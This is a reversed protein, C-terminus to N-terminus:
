ELCRWEMDIINKQDCEKLFEVCDNLVTDFAAHYSDAINQVIEKLTNSGDCLEWIRASVNELLVSIGSDTGANEKGIKKVEERNKLIDDKNVAFEGSLTISREKSIGYVIIADDEDSRYKWLISKRKPTLDLVSKNIM